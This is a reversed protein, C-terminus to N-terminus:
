KVIPLEIDRRHEAFSPDAKDAKFMTWKPLETDIREM